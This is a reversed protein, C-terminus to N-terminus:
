GVDKWMVTCWGCSGVCGHLVRCLGAGDTMDVPVVWCWRVMAPPVGCSDVGHRVM